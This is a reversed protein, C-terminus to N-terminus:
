SRAAYLWQEGTLIASKTSRHMAGADSIPSLRACSNSSAQWCSRGIPSVPRHRQRGTAGTLGRPQQWYPGGRECLHDSHGIDGAKGRHSSRDGGTVIIDMQRMDASLEPVANYRSLRTSQYPSFGPMLVMAATCLWHRLHTMLTPPLRPRPGTWTRQVERYSGYIRRRAANSSSHWFGVEGPTVRGTPYRTECPTRFEM